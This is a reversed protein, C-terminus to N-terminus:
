AERTEKEMMFRKMYTCIWHFAHFPPVDWGFGYWYLSQANWRHEVFADKETSCPEILRFQEVM